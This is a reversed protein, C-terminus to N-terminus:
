QMVSVWSQLRSKSRPPPLNMRSTNIISGNESSGGQSTQLVLQYSLGKSGSYSNYQGALFQDNFNDESQLCSPVPNISLGFAIEGNDFTDCIDITPTASNTDLVPTPSANNGSVYDM